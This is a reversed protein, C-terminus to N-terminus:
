RRSRILSGAAVMIVRADAEREIEAATPATRRQHHKSLREAAETYAEIARVYGRLDNALVGSKRHKHPLPEAVAGAREILALRAESLSRSAAAERERMEDSVYGGRTLLDIRNRQLVKKNVYAVEYALWLLQLTKKRDETM